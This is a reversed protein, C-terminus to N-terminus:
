KKVLTFKVQLGKPWTKAGVPEPKITHLSDFMKKRYKIPIPFSKKYGNTLFDKTYCSVTISTTPKRFCSHKEFVETEFWYPSKTDVPFLADIEKLISQLVLNSYNKLSLHKGYEYLEVHVSTVTPRFLSRFWVTLSFTM